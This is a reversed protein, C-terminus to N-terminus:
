NVFQDRCLRSSGRLKRLSELVGCVGLCGCLGVKFCWLLGVSAISNTNTFEHILISPLFSDLVNGDLM